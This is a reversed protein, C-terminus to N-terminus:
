IKEKKFQEATKNQLEWLYTMIMIQHLAQYISEILGLTGDLFAKKIFYRGIFEFIAMKTTKLITVKSQKAKYRLEAEIKAWKISKKLMLNMNRATNHIIPNKLYGFEGQIKPSEHVRGYWNIFSRKNFLRPVYDPWWGGHRMEHGLIFNKRPFYYGSFKSSKIVSKIEEVSNTTLREDADLYLLWDGKAFKALKNRCKDFAKENTHYIKETFNHAIEVTKDSSNQDLIVIEDAFDLQKLCDAIMKEENKALILASLKM